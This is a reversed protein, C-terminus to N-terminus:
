SYLANLEEADTNRIPNTYVYHCPTRCIALKGLVTFAQWVDDAFGEIM